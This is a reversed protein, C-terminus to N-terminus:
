NCSVWHEDIIARMYGERDITDEIAEKRIRGRWGREREGEEERKSRRRKGVGGGGEDDKRTRSGLTCSRIPTGARPRPSWSSGYM